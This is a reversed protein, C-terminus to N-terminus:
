RAGRRLRQARQELRRGELAVLVERGPEAGIDPELALVERRHAAVLQAPGEVRHALAHRGLAMEDAGRGAVVGLPHGKGAALGILGRLQDFLEM